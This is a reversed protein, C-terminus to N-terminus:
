RPGTWGTAADPDSLRKAEAIFDETAAGADHLQWCGVSDLVRGRATDHLEVWLAPVSGDGADATEVLRVDYGGYSVIIAAKSGDDREPLLFLRTYALILLRQPNDPDVQGTERDSDDSPTM